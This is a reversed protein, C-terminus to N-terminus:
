GGGDRVWRYARDIQRPSDRELQVGTPLHGHERVGGAKGVWAISKNIVVLSADNVLGYPKDGKLMTAVSCNTYIIDEM